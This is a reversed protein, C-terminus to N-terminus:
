RGLAEPPKAPYLEAVVIPEIEVPKVEVPQEDAFPQHTLSDNDARGSQAARYAAVIARWQGPEVLIQFQPPQDELRDPGRKRARGPRGAIHSGHEQTPSSAFTPSAKETGVSPLGAMSAPRGPATARAMQKAPQPATRAHWGSGIALILAALAALGVVSAPIWFGAPWGTEARMRQGEEALRMRVRAAFEPSPREELSAALGQDIAALLRQEAEFSTRCCPCGTLHAELQARHSADLGGLVAAKIWKRYPECNM